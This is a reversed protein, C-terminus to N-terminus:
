EYIEFGETRALARAVVEDLDVSPEDLTTSFGVMLAAQRTVPVVVYEGWTRGQGGSGPGTQEVRWGLVGDGLGTLPEVSLRDSWQPDQARAICEEAQRAIAGVVEEVPIYAGAWAAQAEVLTAGDDLEVVTSPAHQEHGYAMEIGFGSCPGQGAVDWLSQEHTVAGAGRVDDRHLLTPESRDACGALVALAALATPATLVALAVPARRRRDSDM